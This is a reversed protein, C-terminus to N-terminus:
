KQTGDPGIGLERCVFDIWELTKNGCKLEQADLKETHIKANLEGMTRVRLARRMSPMEKEAFSSFGGTNFTRLAEDIPANGGMARLQEKTMPEWKNGNKEYFDEQQNALRTSEVYLYHRDTEDRGTLNLGDEEPLRKIKERVSVLANRDQSTPKAPPNDLMPMLLRALEAIRPHMTSLDPALTTTM